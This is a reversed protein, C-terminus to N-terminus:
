ACNDITPLRTRQFWRAAVAVNIVAAAVILKM